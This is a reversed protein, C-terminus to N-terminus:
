YPLLAAPMRSAAASATAAAAPRLPHLSSLDLRRAHGHIPRLASFISLQLNCNVTEKETFDTNRRGLVALIKRGAPATELPRHPPRQAGAWFRSGQGDGDDGDTVYAFDRGWSPPPPISKPSSTLATLAASPAATTSAPRSSCTARLACLIRWVHRRARGGNVLALRATTLTRSTLSSTTLACRARCPHPTPQSQPSKLIKMSVGPRCVLRMVCVSLVNWVCVSACVARLWVCAVGTRVSM